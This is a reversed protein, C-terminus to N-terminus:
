PGSKISLTTLSLISLFQGLILFDTSESAPIWVWVTWIAVKRIAVITGHLKRNEVTSLEIKGPLDRKDIKPGLYTNTESDM